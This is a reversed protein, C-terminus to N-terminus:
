LKNKKVMWAPFWGYGVMTWYAIAYHGCSVYERPFSHIVIKERHEDDMLVLSERLKQLETM